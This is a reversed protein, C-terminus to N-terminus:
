EVFFAIVGVEESEVGKMNLWNGFGEGIAEQFVM